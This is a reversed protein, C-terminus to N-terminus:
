YSSSFVILDDVLGDFFYRHLYHVGRMDLVGERHKYAVGIRLKMWELANQPITATTYGASYSIRVAGEVDRIDTPWASNYALYIRGPSSRYDVTYVTSEVTSTGGTSNTYQIVVDSASTSLPPYLLEIDEAFSDCVMLFSSPVLARKIKNELQIRAASIYGSVLSDEITSQIKLHSNVSSTEIPEITSRSSVTLSRIIM